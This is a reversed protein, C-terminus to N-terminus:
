PSEAIMHFNLGRGCQPRLELLLAACQVLQVFGALLGLPSMRQKVGLALFNRARSISSSRAAVSARVVATSEDVSTVVAPLLEGVEAM